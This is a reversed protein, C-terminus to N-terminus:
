EAGEGLYRAYVAILGNVKRSVADFDGGPAFAQLAGMKIHSALASTGPSAAEAVVAWRGPHQRLQDAIAAYRRSRGRGDGPGRKSARPEEWRIVTQQEIVASM